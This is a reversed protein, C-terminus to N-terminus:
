NYNLVNIIKNNVTPTSFPLTWYTGHQDNSEYLVINIKKLDEKTEKYPKSSDVLLFNTESPYFDINNKNLEKTFRNYEKKIKEPLEKNYKTDDLCAIALKENVPDIENILHKEKIFKSLSKNTILMSITLSEINYTNNISKLVILNKFKDVLQSGDLKNKNFSLDLYRQDLFVIINNPITEMFEIFEKKDISVGSLSNPSSLYILKTRENVNKSFKDLEPLVKVEKNDNEKKVLSILKNDINKERSFLIVSSPSSTEIITNSNKPIFLEFVRKIADNESRFVILNETTTKSKKSLLEELEGMYANNM